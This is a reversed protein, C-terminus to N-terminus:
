ISQLIQNWFDVYSFVNLSNGNFSIWKSLREDGERLDKKVAELNPYLVPSVVKQHILFYALFEAGPVQITDGAVSNIKTANAWKGFDKKEQDDYFKVDISITAKPDLLLSM